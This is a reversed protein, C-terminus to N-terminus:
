YKLRIKKPVLHYLRCIWLWLRKRNMCWIIAQKLWAGMKSIPFVGKGALRDYVQRNQAVPLYRFVDFLICYSDFNRWSAISSKAQDPVAPDYLLDTLKYIYKLFSEAFEACRYKRQDHIISSQRQVYYYLDVDVHIVRRAKLAADMFFFRDETFNIDERFRVGSEMLWARRMPFQWVGFNFSDGLTAIYDPGSRVPSVADFDRKPDVPLPEEDGIVLPNAFIMDCSLENGIDLLQGLVQPQVYDDADCFYVWDGQAVELGRNRASSCGGNEKWLYKVNPHEAVYRKLNVPEEPSGDDVVIIEFDDPALDQDLLSDLTACVWADAKYFPIIVSLKM